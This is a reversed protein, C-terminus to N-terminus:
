FDALVTIKGRGLGFISMIPVFGEWVLKVFVFGDHKKAVASLCVRFSIDYAYIDLKTITHMVASLSFVVAVVVNFLCSALNVWSM